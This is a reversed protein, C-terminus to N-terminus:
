SNQSRLTGAVNYKTGDIIYQLIKDCRLLEFTPFQSNNFNAEGVVLWRNYVGKSDPIDCYLGCPYSSYYRDKFFEDYYPVVCEQSPKLQLHYTVNDKDFTQSSNALYKVRMPIKNEDKEPHLDNLQTKYEDHYWDYFYCTRTAIDEDWSYEMIMDSQRKRAEGNTMIGITKGYNFLSPM